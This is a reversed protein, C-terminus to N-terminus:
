KGWDDLSAWRSIESRNEWDCDKTESAFQNGNKLELKVMYCDPAKGKDFPKFDIWNLIPIAELDPEIKDVRAIGKETRSTCGKSFVFHYEGKKHSYYRKINHNSAISVIVPQDKYFVQGTTNKPDFKVSNLLSKLSKIENNKSILDSEMKKICDVLEQAEM